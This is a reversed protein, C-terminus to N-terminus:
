LFWAPLELSSTKEWRRCKGYVLHKGMLFPHSHEALLEPFVRLLVDNGSSSGFQEVIGYSKRERRCM